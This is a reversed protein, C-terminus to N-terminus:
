AAEGTTIWAEHGVVFARGRRRPKAQDVGGRAPDDRGGQQGLIIARQGELGAVNEAGIAVARDVARGRCGNEADLGARNLGLDDGGEGFMGQRDDAGDVAAGEVKGAFPAHAAQLEARLRMPAFRCRPQIFAGNEAQPGLIRSSRTQVFAFPACMGKNQKQAQQAKKRGNAVRGMFSCILILQYRQLTSLATMLSRMRLRSARAKRWTIGLESEERESAGDGVEDEPVEIGGVPRGMERQEQEHEEQVAGVGTEEAANGAVFEAVLGRKRGLEPVGKEQFDVGEEAPKIGHAVAGTVDAVMLDGDMPAMIALDLLGEAEVQV